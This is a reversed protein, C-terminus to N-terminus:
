KLFHELFAYAIANSEGTPPHEPRNHMAVRNEFGLLRNVAVAHNLVRWRESNDESGGSVLFPRSAMLAHLEHLNRGDEMLRRYAGRRPNSDSVPGRRPRHEGEFGLYFSDWYNISGRSEDFVIGPDSWVACAFKEHLCSALMAWKGGFSHGMVGIRRADVEPQQALVTHCNAALYALYSLPQCSAGNLVPEAANGGPPGIALTVFGRNALGRAFDTTQLSLPNMPRYYECPLGASTAPDYYVVLVAPFPGAGEPVLLIAPQLYNAATEVKVRYQAFKERKEGPARELRPRALLEPWPGMVRRWYDLIERRRRSWDATTTVKEGNDFRLPPRGPSFQGQLESPPSFLPAIEPWAPSAAQLGWAMALAFAAAGVFRASAQKM